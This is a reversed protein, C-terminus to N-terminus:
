HVGQAQRYLFPPFMVHLVNDYYIPVLIVACGHAAVPNRRWSWCWHSSILHQERMTACEEQM